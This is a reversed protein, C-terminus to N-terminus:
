DSSPQVKKTERIECVENEVDYFNAVTVDNRIEIPKGLLKVRHKVLKQYVKQFDEVIFGIHRLGFNGQRHNSLPERGKPSIYDFLEVVSDHLKMDKM